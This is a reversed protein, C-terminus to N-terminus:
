RLTSALEAMKPGYGGVIIPPPAALALYGGAAGISHLEGPLAETSGAWVHRLMRITEEARRRRIPAPHDVLGAVELEQGYRGGGGGAGIGVALRGNSWRQVTALAQALVIPPRLVPNLVMPGLRCRETAATMISLSTIGELVTRRHDHVTGSLHDMTWLGTIGLADAAAAAEFLKTPEADFPSLGVEIRM